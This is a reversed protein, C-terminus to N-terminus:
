KKQYRFELMRQKIHIEERLTAHADIIRKRTIINGNQLWNNQQNHTTDATNIKNLRLLLDYNKNDFGFVLLVDTRYNSEGATNLKIEYVPPLIINSYKQFIELRNNEIIKKFTFISILVLVSVLIWAKIFHINFPM